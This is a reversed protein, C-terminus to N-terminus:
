KVRREEREREAALRLQARRLRQWFGAGEPDRGRERLVRAIERAEARLDEATRKGSGGSM